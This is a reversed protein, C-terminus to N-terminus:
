GCIEMGSIDSDSTRHLWSSIDDIPLKTKDNPSQFDISVNSCSIIRPMQLISTIIRMRVDESSKFLFNVTYRRCSDFIQLMHDRIFNLPKVEGHLGAEHGYQDLVFYCFFLHSGKLIPKLEQLQLHNISSEFSGRVFLVEGIRLFPPFAPLNILPLPHMIGIIGRKTHINGEFGSRFFCVIPM